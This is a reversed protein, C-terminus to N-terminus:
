LRALMAIAALIASPFLVASFITFLLGNINQVRVEWRGPGKFWARAAELRAEPSFTGEPEFGELRKQHTKLLREVPVDPLGGVLYHGRVARSPRRHNATIVFGGGQTPTM